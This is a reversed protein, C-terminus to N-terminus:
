LTIGLTTSWLEGALPWPNFKCGELDISQQQMVSASQGAGSCHTHGHGLWHGTEHNIVMHRYNRLSGGANNWSPTAGQWRDQNIVVYRGVNCSYQTDCGTASFTTMQSAQSLVLTFMGGSAVEQFRVGMRAWGRSDNLTENADAKFEAVSATIVGRTMVDYTVTQASNDASTQVRAAKAQKLWAPDEVTPLKISSLTTPLEQLSQVQAAVSKKADGDALASHIGWGAVGSAAGLVIAGAIFLVKRM